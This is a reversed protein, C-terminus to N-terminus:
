DEKENSFRPAVNLPKISRMKVLSKRPRLSNNKSLLNQFSRREIRVQEESNENKTADENILTTTKM